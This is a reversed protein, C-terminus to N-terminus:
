AMTNKGSLGKNCRELFNDGLYKNLVAEFDQEKIEPGKGSCKAKKSLESCLGDLDFDGAQM